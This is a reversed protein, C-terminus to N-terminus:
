GVIPEFPKVIRRDYRKMHPMVTRQRRHWLRDLERGQRLIPGYPEFRGLVLEMPSTGGTWGRNSKEVIAAKMRKFEEREIRVCVHGRRHSIAYGFVKIPVRRCDRINVHEDEFFRHKGRTALLAFVSGFRIYQVNAMGNQKRRYRSWKSIAVGYREVLKADIAAADKGKPVEGVVYFWYGNGVYSVALQQIFGTISTSVFQVM